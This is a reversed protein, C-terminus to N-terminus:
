EQHPLTLNFTSGNKLETEAWIRGGHKDVFEKCLILGLGTGKEEATGSTSPGHVLSFLTEMQDESMGVGSDRVTITVGEESESVSITVTGKKPTYKVANNILNRLITSLLNRDAYISTGEPIKLNISIDKKEAQIEFIRVIEEVLPALEGVRPKFEINGSQSRSWELLNEILLHINKAAENIIKSYKQIEEASYESSNGSILESFGLLANLPNRLDHGIISFFKDKTSNLEKLHTESEQLKINAKELERNKGEVLKTTERKFRNRQFYLVFLLILALIVVVLSIIGYKLRTGKLNQIENDMRLLEIEQQLSRANSKLELEKIRMLGEQSVISDKVASYMKYLRLAQKYEGRLNYYETLNKYNEQMIPLSNIEGALYLSEQFSALALSYEKRKLYLNGLNSRITAMMAKDGLKSSINYAREQFDESQSYLGMSLTTEGLNALAISKNVEDGNQEAIELAQTFYLIATDLIDTDVYVAGINNLIPFLQTDDELAIFIDGAKKFYELASKEDDMHLFVAGINNYSSAISNSDGLEERLELAQIYYDMSNPYDGLLYYANGIMYLSNAKLSPIELEQALNNAHIAMLLSTDFSQQWYAESIQCFILVHEEPTAEEMLRELSDIRARVQSFVPRPLMLLLLFLSFIIRLM